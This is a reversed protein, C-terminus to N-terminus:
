LSASSDNKENSDQERSQRRAWLETYMAQLDAMIPKAWDPPQEGKLTDLLRFISKSLSDHVKQLDRNSLSDFWM